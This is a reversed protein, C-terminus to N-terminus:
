VMIYWLIFPTLLRFVSATSCPPCSSGKSVVGSQSLFMGRTRCIRPIRKSSSISVDLSVDDAAEGFTDRPLRLLSASITVFGALIFDVPFDVDRSSLLLCDLSFDFRDSEHSLNDPSVPPSVPLLLDALSEFVSAPSSLSMLSGSM